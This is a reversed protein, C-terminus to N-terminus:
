HPNGVKSLPASSKGHTEKGLDVSEIALVNCLHNTTIVSKVPSLFLSLPAFHLHAVYCNQPITM